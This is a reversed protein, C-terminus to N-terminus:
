AGSTNSLIVTNSLYADKSLYAAGGGANAGQAINNYLTVGTLTMPQQAFLGAGVDDASTLFGNQLTLDQLVVEANAYLVRGNGLADLTTTYLSPNHDAWDNPNYGGVLTLPKAILVSQTHTDITQVGSCYGAVKIMAGPKAADVAQQVAGAGISLFDTFNDGTTEVFCRADGVEVLTTAVLVTIGNTATVTATYSGLSAYSHVMSSSEPGAGTTSGTGTIGDGFDWTYSFNAGNSLTSILIVPTGLPLPSNNFISLRANDSTEDFGMDYGGGQPRPDGDYDVSFSANVGANIGPSGSQLHYDGKDPAVFRAKGVLNNTKVAITGSYPTGLNSFLNYSSTITGSANEIGITHSAIITDSITTRAKNVYIASGTVLNTTGITIHTLRLNANTDHYVATGMGSSAINDAFLVNRLRRDSTGDSSLSVAGGYVARNAQFSSSNVRAVWDFYIGGGKNSASNSVFLTNTIYSEYWFYAGGGNAAQNTSFVTATVGSVDNFWAGGGDYQAYNSSFLTSTVMAPRLFYAGGGRSGTSNSYFTTGSITAENGIYVGGGGNLGNFPVRATNSYVVVNTLTLADNAFIGGGNENNIAGQTITLGQVTAAVTISLVRGTGQADLVTPYASPDNISWNTNTYGGALTLTQTMLAVQTSGGQAVAGACTGAIKVLSDPSAIALANRLASATVSNFDTNNDGTIEVFCQPTGVEAVMDAVLPVGITTTGTVTVTYGGVSAYSHRLTAATTTTITGDGFDWLYNTIAANAVTATFPMGIGPLATKNNGTVRLQAIDATEDFGIDYGGGQPRPEGDFDSAVGASEAANLGASGSRLHYDGNTSDIFLATGTIANGGTSISGSYPKSVTSFLTYDESVAGASVQIGITHSAILTNSIAVTGGGVNIAPGSPTSNSVITNHLIAVSGAANIQIANGNGAKNAALLLNAFQSVGSGSHSIGGGSGSVRNAFFTLNSLLTSDRSRLGGGNIAQNGVFTSNRVTGTTNLRLGGGDGGATNSMFASATINAQGVIYAGGGDSESTNQEFTMRSLTLASTAYIGGGQNTPSIATGNRITLADLTASTTINLVRGLGGASLITPNSVPDSLTWNTVTYGGALTLTKTLVAVQTTGGETIAAACNGALKVTGGAPAAQIASRVASADASHYDTSNDGTIEAFCTDTAAYAPSQFSILCLFAGVLAACIATLRFISRIPQLSHTSM